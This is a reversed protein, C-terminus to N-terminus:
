LFVTFFIYFCNFKNSDFTSVNRTINMVFSHCFSTLNETQKTVVRGIFYFHHICQTIWWMHEMKRLEDHVHWATFYTSLETHIDMYFVSWSCEDQLHWALFYQVNLLCTGHICMLSYIWWIHKTYVIIRVWDNWPWHWVQGSSM